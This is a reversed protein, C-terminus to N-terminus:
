DSWFDRVLKGWFCSLVFVRFCDDKIQNLGYKNFTQFTARMVDSSQSFNLCKKRKVLVWNRKGFQYLHVCARIMTSRSIALSTQVEGWWQWGYILLDTKVECSTMVIAQCTWRGAHRTLKNTIWYTNRQLLFARWKPSSSSGSVWHTLCPPSFSRNQLINIWECITLSIIM